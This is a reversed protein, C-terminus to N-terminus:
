VPLCYDALWRKEQADMLPSLEAKVWEHYNNLWEKEEDTLMSLAVLKTDIPACTLTEFGLFKRGNEGSTKEAVAVLNEIRIGYEGAKYYGPENSVVMGAALSVDGGRKSIRQPGEHVGLFCGVGHGTGHDYDVGDQWLYQRALADLQSGSTGEPFQARALSIHGKLVRTFRDKHESTPTGIAVTRTIDTTGDLYQGGSDLLFLEGTKLARNSEASARYHVIAGHEGSGAITDFSPELFLDNQKRFSLLKDVVELETVNEQDALWYLLKAVAAGDRIHAKRIGALEVPNKIAKPLLCPDAGQLLKVDAARCLDAIFVPTTQSDLLMTKQSFGQLGSALSGAACIRVEAGLHLRLEDSIRSGDIYLQVMGSSDIIAFALCLPTNEVDRARINLLWNVSEPANLFAADAGAKKIAEAIRARKSAASEGSYIVEHAFVTTAPAPPRNEWLGDILNATPTTINGKFKDLMGKTYLKPDYGIKAGGPLERSLWSQPTADASNFVEYDASVQARAQLTYRGDVFMAAKDATVVALGASGSFGALWEVRRNCAPPYESMWEDHVPQLYADIGYGAMLERLKRLKDMMRNGFYVLGSVYIKKELM